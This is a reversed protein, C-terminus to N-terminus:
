HNRQPQHQTPLHLALLLNQAAEALPQVSRSTHARQRSARRVISYLASVTVSSAICFQAAFASSIRSEMRLVNSDSAIDLDSRSASTAFRKLSCFLKSRDFSIFAIWLNRARCYSCEPRTTNADTARKRAQRCECAEVLKDTASM